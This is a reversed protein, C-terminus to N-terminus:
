LVGDSNRWNSYYGTVVDGTVITDTVVEGTM